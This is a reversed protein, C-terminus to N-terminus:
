ATNFNPFFSIGSQELAFLLRKALLINKTNAQNHHWMLANCDKLNEIINTDFCDVVKFPISNVECYKIWRSHFGAESNHIAIKM